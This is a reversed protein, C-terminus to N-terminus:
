GATEARYSGDPADAYTYIESENQSTKADAASFHGMWALLVTLCLVIGVAVVKRKM